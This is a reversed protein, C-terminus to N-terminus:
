NLQKTFRMELDQLMHVGKPFQLEEFFKYAETFRNQIETMKRTPLNKRKGIILELSKKISGKDIGYLKMMLEASQDNCQLRNMGTTKDFVYFVLALAFNSLQAQRCKEMQERQKCEYVEKATELRPLFISSFYPRYHFLYLVSYSLVGAFLVSLMYFNSQGLGHWLFFVLVPLGLMIAFHGAVYTFWYTSIIKQRTAKTSWGPIEAQLKKHTVAFDTGIYATELPFDFTIFSMARKVFDKM